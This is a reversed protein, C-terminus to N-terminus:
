GLKFMQKFSEQSLKESSRTEVLVSSDFEECQKWYKDMNEPDWDFIREDKPLYTKM